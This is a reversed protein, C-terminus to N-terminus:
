ANGNNTSGKNELEEIRSTLTTILTEQDIQKTKLEDIDQSIAINTEELAEMHEVSATLTNALEGFSIQLDLLTQANVNSVKTTTNAQLSAKLALSKIQALTM